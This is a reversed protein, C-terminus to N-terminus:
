TMFRAILAPLDILSFGEDVDGTRDSGPPAYGLLPTRGLAGRDSPQALGADIRAIGVARDVMLAVPPDQARLSVMHGGGAEDQAGDLGLCAALDLVSVILGAVATIGRLAPPANPLATCPRGPGIGSVAALPLGYREPGCACVLYAATEVPQEQAAKRAALAAARADLLAATRATPDAAATAGIRM